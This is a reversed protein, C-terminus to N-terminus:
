VGVAPARVNPVAVPAGDSAATLIEAEIGCLEQVLATDVTERPPGSAVIRGDRM